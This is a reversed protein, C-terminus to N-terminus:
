TDGKEERQEVKVVKQHRARFSQRKPANTGKAQANSEQVYFDRLKDSQLIHQAIELPVLKLLQKVSQRSDTSSLNETVETPPLFNIFGAPLVKVNSQTPNTGGM